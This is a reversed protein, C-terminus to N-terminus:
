KLVPDQLLDLRHLGVVERLPILLHLLPEMGSACAERVHVGFSVIVLLGMRSRSLLQARARFASAPARAIMETQIPPACSRLAPIVSPSVAGIARILSIPQTVM